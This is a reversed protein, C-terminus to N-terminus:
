MTPRLAAQYRVQRLVYVGQGQRNELCRSLGIQVFRMDRLLGVGFRISKLAAKMMPHGCRKFIPAAVLDPSVKEDIRSTAM